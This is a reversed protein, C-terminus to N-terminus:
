LKRVKFKFVREKLFSVCFYFNKWSSDQFFSQFAEENEQFKDIMKQQILFQPLLMSYYLSM